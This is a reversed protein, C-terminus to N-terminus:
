QPETEDRTYFYPLVVEDEKQSNQLRLVLVLLFLNTLSQYAILAANKRQFKSSINARM